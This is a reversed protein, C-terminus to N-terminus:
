KNKFITINKIVFENNKFKFVSINETANSEITCDAMYFLM